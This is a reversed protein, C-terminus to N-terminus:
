SVRELAVLFRLPIFPRPPSELTCLFRCVMPCCLKMARDLDSILSVMGAQATPVPCRLQNPLNRKAVAPGNQLDAILDLDYSRALARTTDRFQRPLRFDPLLWINVSNACGAGIPVTLAVSTRCVDVAPFSHLSSALPRPPSLRNQAHRDRSTPKM